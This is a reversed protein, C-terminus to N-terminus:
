VLSFVYSSPPEHVVQAQGKTSPTASSDATTAPETSSANAACHQFSESDTADASGSVAAHKSVNSPQDTPTTSPETSKRYISYCGLKILIKAKYFKSAVM